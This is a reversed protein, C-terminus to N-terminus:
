LNKQLRTKKSNLFVEVGYRSQAQNECPKGVYSKAVLKNSNTKNLWVFITIKDTAYFSKKSTKFLIM